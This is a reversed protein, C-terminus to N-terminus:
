NVEVTLNGDVAVGLDLALFAFTRDPFARVTVNPLAGGSGQAMSLTFTHAGPAPAVYFGWLVMPLTFFGNVTTGSQCLPTVGNDMRIEGFAVSGTNGFVDLNAFIATLHNPRPEVTISYGAVDARAFGVYRDLIVTTRLLKSGPLVLGGYQESTGGAITGLVLWTAEQRLVQVIDGPVPNYSALYNVDEQVGNGIQVNLQGADTFSTVVGIRMGSLPGIAQAIATPLNTQPGAGGGPMM